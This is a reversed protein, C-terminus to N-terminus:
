DNTEGDIFKNYFMFTYEWLVDSGIINCEECIYIPSPTQYKKTIYEYVNCKCIPCTGMIRKNYM